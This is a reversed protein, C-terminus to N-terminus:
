EHEARGDDATMACEWNVTANFLRQRIVDMGGNLRCFEPEQQALKYDSARECVTYAAQDVATMVESAM